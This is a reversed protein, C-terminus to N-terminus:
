PGERTPLKERSRDLSRLRPVVGDLLQRSSSTPDALVVAVFGAAALTVVGTLARQWWVTLGARERLVRGAKLIRRVRLVRLAGVFRVLRLLQLPGAAFVVALVVLVTVGVLWLNRRLWARRDDSVLFLVATEAVLVAGSALNLAQGATALRGEFLTLLTAPVAALAAVLVPVALREALVDARDPTGGGDREVDAPEDGAADAGAPPSGVSSPAM